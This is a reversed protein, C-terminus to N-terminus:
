AWRHSRLGPQFLFELKFPGARRTQNRDLARPFSVFGPTITMGKMDMVKAGTPVAFSGKKGVAAIRNDKVLLDGGEIVEDGHMTIIQANRFLITGEPKYRPVEITVQTGAVKADSQVRPEVPTARTAGSDSASPPSDEFTVDALPEPLFHLRSGLHHNKRGAVLRLFGRRCEDVKTHSRRSPSTSRRLTM